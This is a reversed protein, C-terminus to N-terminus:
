QWTLSEARFILLLNAWTIEAGSYADYLRVGLSQIKGDSMKWNGVLQEQPLSAFGVNTTTNILTIFNTQSNSAVGNLGASFNSGSTQDFQVRVPNTTSPNLLHYGVLYLRNIRECPVDLTAIASQSVGKYAWIINITKSPTTRKDFDLTESPHGFNTTSNSVKLEM